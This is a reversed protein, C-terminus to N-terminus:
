NGSIFEKVSERSWRRRKGIMIKKVKRLDNNYSKPPGKKLHSRLTPMTIRLLDCVEKDTLLEMDQIKDM